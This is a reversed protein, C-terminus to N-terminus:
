LCYCYQSLLFFNFHFTVNISFNCTCNESNSTSSLFHSISNSCFQSCFLIYFNQKKKTVFLFLIFHFFFQFYFIRLHYLLCMNDTIQMSDDIMNSLRENTWADLRHTAIGCIMWSVLRFHPNKTQNFFIKKIKINKNNQWLCLFIYIRIVFFFLPLIISNMRILFFIVFNLGM